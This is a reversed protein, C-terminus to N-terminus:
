LPAPGINTTFQGIIRGKSMWIHDQDGSPHEVDPQDGPIFVHINGTCFDGMAAIMHMFIPLQLDEPSFYQVDHNPLCPHTHYGGIISSGAPHARRIGVQDGIYDTEPKTYSYKGDALRILAGSWEYYISSPHAEVARLASFIAESVTIYEPYKADLPLLAIAQQKLTQAQQQGHLAHSQRIEIVIPRHEFDSFRKGAYFCLLLALITLLKTKM